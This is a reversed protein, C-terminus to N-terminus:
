NSKLKQDAYKFGFQELVASSKPGNQNSFAAAWKPRDAWSNNLCSINSNTTPHKNGVQMMKGARMTLGASTEVFGCFESTADAPFM